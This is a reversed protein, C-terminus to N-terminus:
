FIRLAKVVSEGMLEFHRKRHQRYAPTVFDKKPVTKKIGSKPLVVTHKTVMKKAVNFLSIARYTGLRITNARVMPATRKVGIFYADTMDEVGGASLQTDGFRKLVDGIAKSDKESLKSKTINKVLQGSAVLPISGGKLRITLETNAALGFEQRLIGERMNSVLEEASKELAEQLEKKTRTHLLSKLSQIKAVDGVVQCLGGSAM